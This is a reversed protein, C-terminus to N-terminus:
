PQASEATKGEEMEKIRVRWPVKIASFGQELSALGHPLFFMVLVVLIGWFFLDLGPLFNRLLVGSMTIVFAGIIPGSILYHAGGVLAMVQVLLSEHMMFSETYLVLWYHALIAGSLGAFFNALVFAMLKYKLGGIGLSRALPEVNIGVAEMLRGVRSKDIRWLVMVTILFVILVLYYYPVRSAMFNVGPFTPCPIGTLEYGGGLREPMYQIGLRVMESFALTIGAFYLTRTRLIIPGVVLSVLSSMIGGIPLAIWFSLHLRMTVFAAAYAGIAWFGAMGLSFEGTKWILAWALVLIAWLGSMIMLNLFYANQSIAPLLFALALLAAMAM